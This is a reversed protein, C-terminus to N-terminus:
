RPDSGDGDTDASGSAEDGDGDPSGDTGPDTTSSRTEESNEADPAGRGSGSGSVLATLEAREKRRKRWQLAPWAGIVAVVLAFPLLWGVGAALFRAATLLSEAGSRLSELFGPAEAAEDDQTPADPPLLTLEVTSYATRDELSALRAQFAELDEQRELIRSEVDLLEEVGDAEDLYGRLTELSREASETRAEVDAVEETVDEVSRELGTREGLDSLEALVAEYSDTPVRLTMSSRTPGSSPDEYSERSVHGGAEGTLEKAAESSADLEDVRVTLEAHHVLDRDDVEVDDGVASDEGDGEEGGGDGDEEAPLAEQEAADNRPAGAGDSQQTSGCGALLLAVLFAAFLSGPTRWKASDM